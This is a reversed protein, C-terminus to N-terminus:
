DAPARREDNALLLSVRSKDDRYLDPRFLEELVLSAAERAGAEDGWPEAARRMDEYLGDFCHAQLAEQLLELLLDLARTGEGGVGILPPNFINVLDAIARGLTRGAVSFIGQAITDGQRALTVAEDMSLERGLATGLRRLIAPDAVLTELCGRKGCDCRPGDPVVTIHGFEGGGGCGGRFLKATSCWAWAPAAAWRSRWSIASM